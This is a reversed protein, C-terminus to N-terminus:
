PHIDMIRKLRKRQFASRRRSQLEAFKELSFHRWVWKAVSKAVSRVEQLPLPVAFSQNQDAAVVELYSRFQWKSLGISKADRVARYAVARLDDFLTCNRGAGVQLERRSPRRMDRPELWASLDGVKYPLPALWTTRWRPSLPNKAILGSYGPDARLRQAMGYEVDALYEIPRPRSAATLPVPAALAYILHAHGNQPNVCIINPPPLNAEEFALGADTRDVDFILFRRLGPPNLQIHDFNVASKRSRILL